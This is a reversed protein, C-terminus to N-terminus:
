IFELQERRFTLENGIRLPKNSTAPDLKVDIFETFEDLADRWLYKHFVEGEVGELPYEEDPWWELTKPAHIRVRTGVPIDDLPPIDVFEKYGDPVNATGNSPVEVVAHAADSVNGSCMDYLWTELDVLYRGEEYRKGIVRGCGVLCDGHPTQMFHLNRHYYLSADDGMWSTTIRGLQNRCSDSFLVARPNSMMQSLDTAFHWELGFRQANSTPCPHTAGWEKYVRTPYMHHEEAVAYWSIMDWLNMRGLTTHAVEEGVKVDEWYRPEAGRRYEKAITDEIWQNQTDTYWHDEFEPLKYRQGRPQDYLTCDLYHKHTCVLEGRQNYIDADRQIYGWCRPGEHEEDDKLTEVLQPGRQLVRLEDGAYIQKYQKFYGGYHNCLMGRRTQDSQLNLDVQIMDFRDVFFPFAHLSGWRTKKAYEPDSYRPNWYDSWRNYKLITWEDAITKQQEKQWGQLDSRAKDIADVLEQEAANYVNRKPM